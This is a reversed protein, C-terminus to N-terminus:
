KIYKSSKSSYIQITQAPLAFPRRRFWNSLHTRLGQRVNVGYIYSRCTDIQIGTVNFEFETEKFELSKTVRIDKTTEKTKTVNYTKNQTQDVTLVPTTGAVKAYGLVRMVEERNMREALDETEWIANTILKVKTRVQQFTHRDPLANTISPCMAAAELFAPRYNTLTKEHHPDGKVYYKRGKKRTIKEISHMPNVRAIVLGQGSLKVVWQLDGFLFRPYMSYAQTMLLSCFPIILEIPVLISTGGTLSKVVDYASLMTGCYSVDMEEVDKWLSYTGQTNQMESEPRVRHLLFSEMIQDTDETGQVDRKQHQIKITSIADTSSKFGCFFGGMSQLLAVTAPDYDKNESSSEAPIDQLKALAAFNKTDFSGASLTYV